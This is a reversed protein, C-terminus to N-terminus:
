VTAFISRLWPGVATYVDDAAPFALNLFAHPQGACNLEQTPVGAERLRGAYALGEDRLWDCGGVMVFAPPLCSLDDALMPFVYADDTVDKDGGYMPVLRDLDARSLVLGDYDARSAYPADPVDTVPYLLVQAAIAPGGTDRLRLALAASLNGGGSEGAIALRSAPVGFRAASASVWRTVTECDDLGAPYPDEPALRYEVSVVTAGSCVALGRAINDMLARSGGIFGGGHFYVILGTPVGEAEYIWVPVGDVVDETVSTIGPSPPPVDSTPRVMALVEPTFEEPQDMLEGNAEFWDVVWPDVDPYGTAKM